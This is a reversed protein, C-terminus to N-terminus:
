RGEMHVLWVDSDDSWYGVDCNPNTCLLMTPDTIKEGTQPDYGATRPILKFGCRNCYKPKQTLTNEM